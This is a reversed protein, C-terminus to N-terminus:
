NITFRISSSGGNAPLTAMFGSSATFKGIVRHLWLDYATLTATPNIKVYSFCKSDCTINAIETGINLFVFVWDKNLLPKGWINQTEAPNKSGLVLPNGLIRQGQIGMRDQNVAILDMNKYTELDFGNMQHTGLLLPATMVCWMSFMTRSQTPPLSAATGPTSGLLMDPDNWGGPRANIFLNANVNIARVVDPWKNCDGSIRWSNGLSFGVPSYWSNWGCLSFYIHRGTSNLADRMRGYQEFADQHNDTAYCSDEKLYDIGWSAYTTADKLEFGLSGPRKACTYTGRDTYIGYKWGKSHVYDAVVKMGRPWKKPDSQIIGQGNRSIAWCDDLNLYEYGVGRLGNKNLLDVVSFIDVESVDCRYDNWTNYGM